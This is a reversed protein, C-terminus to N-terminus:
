FHVKNDPGFLLISARDAKLLAKVGKLAIEYVEELSKARNLNVIVEYFLIMCQQNESFQHLAEIHGTVDIIQCQFESVRNKTDTFVSIFDAIWVWKGNKQKIQYPKNQFSTKGSNLQKKIYTLVRKRHSESILQSFTIKGTLFDKASYGTIKKIGPSIEAPIGSFFDDLKKWKLYCTNKVIYKEVSSSQFIGSLTSLYKLFNFQQGIKQSEM